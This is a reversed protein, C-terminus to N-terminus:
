ILQTVPLWVHMHKCEFEKHRLTVNLLPISYDLLLILNVLIEYTGKNFDALSSKLILDWQFRFTKNDPIVVKQLPRVVYSTMLSCVERLNNPFLTFRGFSYLVACTM